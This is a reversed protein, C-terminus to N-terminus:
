AVKRWWQKRQPAWKWGDAKLKDACSKTADKPGVLWANGVKSVEVTCGDPVYFAVAHTPVSSTPVIQVDTPEIVVTPVPQEDQSTAVIPVPQEVPTEIADPEVPADARALEDRLRRVESKEREVEDVLKRNIRLQEDYSHRLAEYEGPDVGNIGGREIDGRQPMVIARAIRKKDIHVAFELASGETGIGCFTVAVRKDYANTFANEVKGWVSMDVTANACTTLSKAYLRDYTPYKGDPMEWVHYSTPNVDALAQGFAVASKYTRVNATKGDANPEIRVYDSAGILKDTPVISWDFADPVNVGDPNFTYTHDFEVLVQSDTAVIRLDVVRSGDACTRAEGRVNFACLIPRYKDTSTACMIGKILNTPVVIAHKNNSETAM